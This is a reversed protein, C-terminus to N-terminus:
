CVTKYQFIRRISELQLTIAESKTKLVRARTNKESVLYEIFANVKSVEM